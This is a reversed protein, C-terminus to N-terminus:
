KERIGGSAKTQPPSRLGRIWCLDGPPNRLRLQTRAIGESFPGPPRGEERLVVFAGRSSVLASAWDLPRLGMKNGVCFPTM